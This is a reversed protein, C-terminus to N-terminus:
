LKKRDRKRFMYDPHDLMCHVCYCTYTMNGLHRKGEKDYWIEQANERPPVGSFDHKCNKYKEWDIYKRRM